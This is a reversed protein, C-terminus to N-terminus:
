SNSIPIKLSKAELEMQASPFVLSKTEWWLASIKEMKEM